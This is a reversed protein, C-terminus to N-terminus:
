EGGALLNNEDLYGFGVKKNQGGEEDDGEEDM